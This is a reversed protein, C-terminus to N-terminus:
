CGCCQRVLQELGLLATHTYPLLGTGMAPAACCLAFLLELVAVTRCKLPQQLGCGRKTAKRRTALCILGLALLAVSAPLSLLQHADPTTTTAALYLVPLMQLCSSWIVEVWAAAYGYRRGAGCCCWCWGGCGRGASAVAAAEREAAAASGYFLEEDGFQAAIAATQLAASVALSSGVHGLAVYQTVVCRLVVWQLLFLGCRRLLVRAHLQFRLLPYSHTGEFFDRVVNLCAGRSCSSGCSPPSTNGGSCVCVADLEGSSSDGGNSTATGTGTRWYSSWLHQWHAHGAHLVAVVFTSASATALVKGVADTDDLQLIDWDWTGDAARGHVAVFVAAAFCLVYCAWANAVYVYVEDRGEGADCHLATNNIRPGYHLRGPMAKLLAVQLVVFRWVHTWTALDLPLVLFLELFAKWGAPNNSLWLDDLAQEVFGGKYAAIYWLLAVVVPPVLLFTVWCLSRLSFVGSLRLVNDCDGCPSSCHYQHETAARRAM